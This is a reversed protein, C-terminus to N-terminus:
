DGALAARHRPAAAPPAILRGTLDVAPEVARAGYALMRRDADILLDRRPGEAHHPLRAAHAKVHALALLAGRREAETLHALPDVAM